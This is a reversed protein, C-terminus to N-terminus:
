SEELFKIENCIYGFQAAMHLSPSAPCLERVEIEHQKIWTHFGMFERGMFKWLEWRGLTRLECFCRLV